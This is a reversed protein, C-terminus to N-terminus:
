PTAHFIRALALAPMACDIMVTEVYTLACGDTPPGMQCGIAGAASRADGGWASCATDSPATARRSRRRRSQLRQLPRGAATRLPRTRRRGITRCGSGLLQKESHDGVADSTAQTQQQPTLGEIFRVRGSIRTLCREQVDESIVPWTRGSIQMSEHFVLLLNLIVEVQALTAGHRQLALVSFFLNPQQAHVEEALRERDQFAMREVRLAADVLTQSSISTM